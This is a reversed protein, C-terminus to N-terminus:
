RSRDRQQKLGCAIQYIHFHSQKIFVFRLALNVPAGATTRFGEGRSVSPCASYMDTFVAAVNRLRLSMVIRRRSVCFLSVRNLAAPRVNTEAASTRSRTFILYSCYAGGCPNSGCVPCVCTALLSGM